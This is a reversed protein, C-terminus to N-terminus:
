PTGLPRSCPPEPSSPPKSPSPPTSPKPKNAITHASSGSLITPPTSPSRPSKASNSPLKKSRMLQPSSHSTKRLPRFTWEAIRQQDFRWNKSRLLVTVIQRGDSDHFGVFCLGAPNTYGTKIGQISPDVEFLDNRNQMLIDQTNITRDITYEPTKVAERFRENKMAERGIKALDLATTLHYPHNLGHPTFFETNTAGCEAARENMKRAFRKLSGSLHLAITHAGDNASRLMLARLMDKSNVREGPRLHMSSGRVEEIDQPATLVDSPDTNEALLLGTMIKTTSAPYKPVEINKGWLIRGTTADMVIAAEASVEPGDPNGVQINLPTVLLSAIVFLSM